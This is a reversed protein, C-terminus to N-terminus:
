RLSQRRAPQYVDIAATKFFGLADHMVAYNSKAQTATAVSDKFKIYFLIGVGATAMTILASLLMFGANLLYRGCNQMKQKNLFGAFRDIRVKFPIEQNEQKSTFVLLTEKAYAKLDTEPLSNPRAQLCDIVGQIAKLLVRDNNFQQKENDSLRESQNDVAKSYEANIKKIKAIMEDLSEDRAQM